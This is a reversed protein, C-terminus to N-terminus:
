ILIDSGTIQRIVDDKSYLLTYVATFENQGNVVTPVFNIGLWYGINQVQKWANVDDTIQTIYLQQVPTLVKGVSITGNFLAQNVVGQMINLIQAQGATNASVKGLALLLTMLAAGLADKLWIENAYTNQDLPDTSAGWMVGRQYFSIIQGATQTNGYYNISLADYTNSDADDTVSATLSPIVQYMYNQTSNAAAYDTAALIMMPIMSHYQGSIQPDLTPAIGGTTGLAAEWASANAAIVPLCYIYMVNQAVNWNAIEEAQSLTFSSGGIFEFSGFNNNAAASQTLCQTLTQVPAGPGLITSASLWGLQSAIDNPSTGAAVSIAATGTTGGVLDFRQNTADWTVTAGTWLAGGASIANIATQIVSAVGSLSGASSFNLGTFSNTESGMTLHFAGSTISTWSALTQAGKAGFIVPACAVSNWRAFSLAEPSTINKSVWGFYQLARSYESGAGFYSLVEAANNFTVQANSPILANDDFLRGILQRTGVNNAAGVGSTIDVYKQISIPM